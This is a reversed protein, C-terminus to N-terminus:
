PYETYPWPGPPPTPHGEQDTRSDEVVEDAKVPLEKIEALAGELGHQCLGCTEATFVGGSLHSHHVRLARFSLRWGRDQSQVPGDDQRQMGRMGMDQLQNANGTGRRQNDNAM